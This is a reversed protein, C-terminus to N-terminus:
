LVRGVARRWAALKEDRQAATSAPAFSGPRGRGRIRCREWLGEGMGALAAAGLATMEVEGSRVVTVGSYDAQMQLLLDNVCAGGDVRLEKVPAGEQQMIEIVEASQLAIAELAARAIHARGTGRSLGLIAGRAEPEWYPAGLGVFAPVFAVGGTDPVSRALAEVQASERIIGLEDRLWQVAGGGVFVSGELAYCPDGAADCAVTTLLGRSCDVRRDGTNVLLFCGTGYTNKAQGPAVCGQGFLASQQDGMVARIPIGAPIVRDGATTGFRAGSPKVDALLGAPIGMLELLEESWRRRDIDYLMTRSANTPDTAYQAGATLRWLLWTDVTGACLEDPGLGRREAEDLLLRLKPGSFYPDVTLGSLRRIMPGHEADLARCVEATRRCQWVIARGVPAGSARTWLGVTERQNTIGIAAIRGWEGPVQAVARAVAQLVSHWIELLDHEVWGPRPFHQPFEVKHEGVVSGDAALVLGRSSTTGQDIALVCDATMARETERTIASYGVSEVAPPAVM